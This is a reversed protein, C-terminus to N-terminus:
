PWFLFLTLLSGVGLCWWANPMFYPFGMLTVALLMHRGSQIQKGYRWAAYGVLGFVIGLWLNYFDFHM